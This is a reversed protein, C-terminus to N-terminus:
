TIINDPAPKCYQQYYIELNFKKRLFNLYTEAEDTIPHPSVIILRDAKDDNGHWYAYELLQPIAQRICARVSAATKIEYFWCFKDTKVVIDISTGQGTDNETGVHNAGYQMVLDAFLANQIENHLLTAISENKSPVIKVSGTKRQNHGPHFVFPLHAPSDDTDFFFSSDESTEESDGKIVGSTLWNRFESESISFVRHFGLDVAEDILANRKDWGASELKLTLLQTVLDNLGNIQFLRHLDYNVRTSSHDTSYGLEEIICAFNTYAKGDIHKGRKITGSFTRKGAGGKMANILKHHSFTIALLVLADITAGGRLHAERWVDPVKNDRTASLTKKAQALEINIGPESDWLHKLVEDKDYKKLLVAIKHAGHKTLSVNLKRLDTM